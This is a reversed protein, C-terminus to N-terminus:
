EYTYLPIAHGIIQSRMTPGFYRGDYSSPHTNLLFIQSDELKICGTWIPLQRALHDVSKAESVLSGNVFIRSEFRCITDGSVGVIHKLVPVDPPLYGRSIALGEAQNDLRVLVLDGKKFAGSEIYYLGLPVSQSGNWVLKPTLSTFAAFGILGVSAASCLLIHFKNM